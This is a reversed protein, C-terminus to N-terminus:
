RENKGTQRGYKMLMAKATLSLSKDSSSINAQSADIVKSKVNPKVSALRDLSYIAERRLFPIPDSTAASILLEGALDTVPDTRNAFNRLAQIAAYRMSQNGHGANKSVVQFHSYDGARALLGALQIENPRGSISSNPEAILAKISPMWERNNFDCLAEAAVIKAPFFM